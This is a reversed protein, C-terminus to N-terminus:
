FFPFFVVGEVGFALSPQSLAYWRALALIVSIKMLESPQIRVPGMVLWRKAGM